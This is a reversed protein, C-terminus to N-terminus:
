TSSDSELPITFYDVLQDLPGTCESPKYYHLGAAGTGSPAVITNSARSGDDFVISSTGPEYFELETDFPECYVGAILRRKIQKIRDDISSPERVFRTFGFWGRKVAFSEIVVEDEMRKASPPVEVSDWPRGANPLTFSFGRDVTFYIVCVDLGNELEGTAHIDVVRAGVIDTKQIRRTAM